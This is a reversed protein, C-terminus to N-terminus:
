LREKCASYIQELCTHVMSRQLRNGYSRIIDQERRLLGQFSGPSTSADRRM